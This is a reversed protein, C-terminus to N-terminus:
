VGLEIFIEVEFLYGIGNINEEDDEFSMRFDDGVNGGESDFRVICGDEFIVFFRGFRKDSDWVDDGRSEFFGLNGVFGDLEDGGM